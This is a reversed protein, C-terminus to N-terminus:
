PQALNRLYLTYPQCKGELASTVSIGNPGKSSLTNATQRASNLNPNLGLFFFITLDIHMTFLVPMHSEMSVWM